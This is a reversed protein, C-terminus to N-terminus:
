PRKVERVSTKLDLISEQISKTREDIRGLTGAQEAGKSETVRIRAEHDALQLTTARMKEPLAIWFTTAGIANIILGGITLSLAWRAAKARREGDAHQQQLEDTSM